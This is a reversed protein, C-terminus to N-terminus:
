HHRRYTRRKQSARKKKYTTRKRQRRRSTRHGGGQTAASPDWQQSAFSPDRSIIGTGHTASGTGNGDEMKTPKLAFELKQNFTSNNIRRRQQRVYTETNSETSTSGGPSYPQSRAVTLLLPNYSYNGITDVGSPMSGKYPPTKSSVINDRDPVNSFDDSYIFNYLEKMGYYYDDDGLDGEETIDLVIQINSVFRDNLLRKFLARFYAHNDVTSTSASLSRKTSAPASASSSETRMGLEGEISDKNSIDKYNGIYVNNVDNLFQSVEAMLNIADGPEQSNYLISGVLISDAILQSLDIINVDMFNTDIYSQITTITELISGYAPSIGGMDDYDMIDDEEGGNGMRMNEEAVEELDEEEEYCESEAYPYDLTDFGYGRGRQLPNPKHLYFLKKFIPKTIGLNMYMTQLAKIETSGIRYSTSATTAINTLAEKLMDVTNKVKKPPIKSVKNTIKKVVNKKKQFFLPNPVPAAAVVPAVVGTPIEGIRFINIDEIHVDPIDIFGEPLPDDFSWGIIKKFLPIYTKLVSYDIGPNFDIEMITYDSINLSDPTVMVNHVSDYFNGNMYIYLIDDKMVKMRLLETFMLGFQRRLTDHNLVTRIWANRQDIALNILTSRGSRSFATSEVRVPTTVALMLITVFLSIINVPCVGSTTFRTINNSIEQFLTDKVHMFSMNSNISNSVLSTFINAINNYMVSTKNYFLDTRFYENMNGPSLIPKYKISYTPAGDMDVGNPTITTFQARNIYKETISQFYHIKELTDLLTYLFGTLAHNPMILNLDPFNLINNNIIANDLHGTFYETIHDYSDTFLGEIRARDKLSGDEDILTKLTDYDTGTLIQEPQNGFQYLKVSNPGSLLIPCKMYMMADMSALIDLTKFIPRIHAYNNNCSFAQARDGSTKLFLWDLRKQTDAAPISAIFRCVNEISSTKENSRILIQTSTAITPNWTAQVTNPAVYELRLDKGLSSNGKPLAVTSIPETETLPIKRPDVGSGPDAVTAADMCFINPIAGPSRRKRYDEYKKIINGSQSDLYWYLQGTGNMDRLITDFLTNLEAHTYEETKYNELPVENHNFLFSDLVRYFANKAAADTTCQGFFAILDRVEDANCGIGYSNCIREIIANPAFYADLFPKGYDHVLDALTHKCRLLQFARRINTDDHNGYKVFFPISAGAVVGTGVPGGQGGTTAASM